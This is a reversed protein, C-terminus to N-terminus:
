VVNGELSEEALNQPVFGIKERITEHGVRSGQLTRLEALSRFLVKELSIEYRSLLTLQDGDYGRLVEIIGKSDFGRAAHDILMSEMQTVRSLRWAAALAREWFLRELLGQPRFYEYFEAEFAAFDTKSEQDLLVQKSFVGHKLANQAVIEKGKETKAGTSRQSNQRNAEIQRQTAMIDEKHIKQHSVHSLSIERHLSFRVKEGNERTQLSNSRM